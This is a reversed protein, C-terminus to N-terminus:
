EAVVREVAAALDRAGSVKQMAQYPLDGDNVLATLTCVLAHASFGLVRRRTRARHAEILAFATSALGAGLAFGAALGSLLAPSPSLVLPM